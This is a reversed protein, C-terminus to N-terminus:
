FRFQQHRLGRALQRGVQSWARLDLYLQIDSVYSHHTRPPSGLRPWREPTVYLHVTAGEEAPALGALETAENLRPSAEVLAAIPLGDLEPAARRILERVQLGCQLTLGYHIRCRWFAESLRHFAEWSGVTPHAYRRLDYIGLSHAEAWADLLAGPQALMRTARPGRGEKRMWGRAELFSCVQHATSVSVYAEGALDDLHWVREPADLLTELVRASSGRYPNTLVRRNERPALRDVQFTAGPLEVFLSGGADYYGVHGARLLKRSAATIAPAAIMPLDPVPQELNRAAAVKWLANRVDRPYGHAQGRVLLRAPWGALECTIALDFVADGVRVRSDTELIRV